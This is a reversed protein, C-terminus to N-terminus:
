ELIFSASRSVKREGQSLIVTVQYQGPSLSKSGLAFMYPITQQKPDMALKLPQSAALEGNHRVEMALAPADASGADVHIDFFLSIKPSAAQSVRGSLNPVVIGETCRLPNGADSAVAPDIRGVLLVDGLAPGKEVPPITFNDRRAGAKGARSDMAVSELVYDGPPLTFQRQFRAVGPSPPQPNALVRPLSIDESFKRVVVGSADKLQALVSVHEAGTALGDLPVQVVVSNVDRDPANGFRLVAANLPLAVPLQPAALAEILRGEIASVIEKDGPRAPYRTQIFVGKRLSEVRMAHRRGTDGFSPPIWSALYYSTLDAAIGRTRTRSDGGLAYVHGGGTLVCIGELTRPTSGAEGAIVRGTFEDAVSLTGQPDTLAATINGLAGETGLAASAVLGTASDPDGIEADVGYVSVHARNAAQAIDRLEEPSNTYQGIGQSFFVVFKRGPLVQQGRCVALLGAVAPTSRGDTKVTHQSDLLMAKVLMAMSQLPGPAGKADQEMRAEAADAAKVAEPRGAVTTLAVAKRVADMDATPPQMLHIRGEVRLVMFLTGHGAAERLLEEALDRDVKAVGPVVDDFVLTVIPPALPATVLRLSSLPVTKNGEVIQLESATLDLVPNGKKDHASLELTAQRAPGAVGAPAAAPQAFASFPALAFV